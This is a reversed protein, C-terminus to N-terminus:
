LLHYHHFVICYQQPIYEGEIEIMLKAKVEKEMQLRSVIVIVILCHHMNVLSLIYGGCSCDCQLSLRFFKGLRDYDDLKRENDKDVHLKM